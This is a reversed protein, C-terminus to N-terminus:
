KKIFLRHFDGDFDKLFNHVEIIDDSGVIGSKLFKEKESPLLDSIVQIANSEKIVVAMMGRSGCSVCHVNLFWMDDRHGLVQLEHLKYHQGCLACKLTSLMKKMHLEDM